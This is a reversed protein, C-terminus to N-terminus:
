ASVAYREVFRKLVTSPHRVDSARARDKLAEAEEPPFYGAHRYVDIRTEIGAADLEPHFQTAYVNAGIRFAQVPCAPSSALRVAHPPLERVAEKHGVFAEFETPLLGFIPDKRGEDTLMVSVPGVPESYTRDVVAGQHTGITGVGYCAGLMPFDAAVVADLLTALEGEVRLQVASKTEPPDSSNFPSGGMILGSYDELRLEGLPQQELRIRHLESEDLGSFRLMAEYEGDAAADEPRTALLLFPKM